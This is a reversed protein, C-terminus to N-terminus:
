ANKGLNAAQARTFLARGKETGLIALVAQPHAASSHLDAM